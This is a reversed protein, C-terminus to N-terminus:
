FIKVKHFKLYNMKDSEEFTGLIPMTNCSKQINEKLGHNQMPKLFQCCFTKQKFFFVKEGWRKRLIKM